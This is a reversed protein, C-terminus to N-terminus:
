GSAARMAPAMEGRIWSPGCVFEGFDDFSFSRSSRSTPRHSGRRKSETVGCQVQLDAPM